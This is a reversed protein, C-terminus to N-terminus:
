EFSNKTCYFRPTPAPHNEILTATACELDKRWENEWKKARSIKAIRANVLEDNQRLSDYVKDFSYYVEAGNRLDTTTSAVLKGNRIIFACAATQTTM